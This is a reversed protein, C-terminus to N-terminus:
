KILKSRYYEITKLLGDDLSTRSKYNTQFTKRDATGPKNILLVKSRSGSLEIIKNALDKISIWSDGGLETVTANLNTIDDLIDDIFTFSDLQEGTGWIEIDENKLAKKIFVPIVRSDNIDMGPGYVSFLRAIKIDMGEQVIYNMCLTEAHKKGNIYCHVKLNSEVIPEFIRITSMQVVSAPITCKKALELINKVGSTNTKYTGEPDVSCEKPITPSALNYIKHIDKLNIDLIKNDSIDMEIHFYNDESLMVQKPDIGIVYHGMNLLRKTLCSGIFGADGTILINM